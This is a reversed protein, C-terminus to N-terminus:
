RPQRGVLPEPVTLKETDGYIAEELRTIRSSLMAVYSSVREEAASHENEIAKLRSLIDNGEELVPM